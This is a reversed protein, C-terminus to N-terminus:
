RPRDPRNTRRRQSLAMPILCSVRLRVGELATDSDNVVEGFASLGGGPNNGFYVPDVALPLPTPTPSPTGTAVEDNTDTPHLTAPRRALSQTSIGNAEQIAASRSAMNKRWPSSTEGSAITHM